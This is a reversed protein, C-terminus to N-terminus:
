FDEEVPMDDESTAGANKAPAQTTAQANREPVASTTAVQKRDVTEKYFEGSPVGASQPLDPDGIIAPKPGDPFFKKALFSYAKNSGDDNKVNQNNGDIFQELGVIGWCWAAKLKDVPVAENGFGLARKLNSLLFESKCKKNDDARNPHNAPLDSYYFGDAISEGKENVFTIELGSYGRKDVMKEASKYKTWPEIKTIRMRHLGPKMYNSGTDETVPLGINSM